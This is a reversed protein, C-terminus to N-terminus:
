FNGVSITEFWRVLQLFAIIQNCSLGQVTILDNRYRLKRCCNLNGVAVIISNYRESEIHKRRDCNNARKAVAKKAVLQAGKPRLDM